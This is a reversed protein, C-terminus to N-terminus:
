SEPVPVWVEAQEMGAAPPYYEFCPRSMDIRIGSAQQWEGFFWLWTAHLNALPTTVMAYRGAPVDRVVLGAPPVTGAPVIMGAIMDLLQGEGAAFFVSLPGDDIALAEMEAARPAFQDQWIGPYDATMPDIRNLVGLVTFGERQTFSVEM